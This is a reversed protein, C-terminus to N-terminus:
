MGGITYTHERYKSYLNPVIERLDDPTWKRKWEIETEFELEERIDDEQQEGLPIEKADNYVDFSKLQGNIYNYLMKVVPDKSAAFVREYTCCNKLIDKILEIGKPKLTCYENEGIEEVSKQELLSKVSYAYSSIYGYLEFITSYPDLDIDMQALSDANKLANTYVTKGQSVLWARFDMFSDDSIGNNITIAAAVLNPTDSLDMYCKLLNHFDIIESLSLKLLKEQTAILISDKDKDTEQNVTDILSWFQDKNM